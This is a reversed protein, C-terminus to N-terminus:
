RRRSAGARTRRAKPAADAELAALGRALAFRLVDSVSGHWV